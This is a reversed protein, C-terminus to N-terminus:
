TIIQYHWAHFLLKFFFPHAFFVVKKGESFLYFIHSKWRERVEAVVDRLHAPALGGGQGGGQGGRVWDSAWAGPATGAPRAGTGWM